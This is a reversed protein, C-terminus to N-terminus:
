RYMLDRKGSISMKAHICDVLASVRLFNRLRATCFLASVKRSLSM